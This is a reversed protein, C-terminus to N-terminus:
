NFLADEEDDTFDGFDDEASAHSSLAEGEQVRQVNTIYGGVGGNGKVYAGMHVGVRGWDGSKVERSGLKVLKGQADKVIGVVNPAPMDNGDADTASTKVNLVMHGKCEAAMPDGNQKTDTDGDRLPNWFNPPLKKKKSTWEAATLEAIAKKVAAIDETNTKPILVALSYDLKGSEKNLRPSFVHLHSFRVLKGKTAGLILKIRLSKDEAM